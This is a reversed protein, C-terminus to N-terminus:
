DFLATKISSTIVPKCTAFNISVEHSMTRGLPSVVYDMSYQISLQQNFKIYAFGLVAETFRYGIGIGCINKYDLIANVDVSPQGSKPIKFLIGSNVNYDNDLKLRYGANIMPELRFRSELGIGDWKPRFLNQLAFGFYYNAGNWWAGFTADPKVLSAESYVSPDLDITKVSFPDYGFHMMGLSLGLSLRTDRSFNFHGAYALNFKNMTFQGIKDYEVKVGIGHRGFLYDTRKAQLPCSLTFFGSKPAGPVGVWQYRALTQIDVCEKIGAHAPNFAFQHTSWQSYQISQQSIATGSHILFFVTLINLLKHFNIKM